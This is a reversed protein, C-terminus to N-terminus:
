SDFLRFTAAQSLIVQEEQSLQAELIDSATPFGPFSAMNASGM